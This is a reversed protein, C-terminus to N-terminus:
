QLSEDYNELQILPRNQTRINEFIGEVLSVEWFNSAKIIPQTPDTYLQYNAQHSAYVNHLAVLNVFQYYTAIFNFGINGGHILTVDAVTAGVINQM